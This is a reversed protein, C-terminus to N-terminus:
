NRPVQAALEIVAPPVSPNKASSNWKLFGAYCLARVSVATDEVEACKRYIETASSALEPNTHLLDALEGLHEGASMLQEPIGHAEDETTTNLDRRSPLTSMLRTEIEALRKKHNEAVAETVSTYAQSFRGTAPAGTPQASEIAHPSGYSSQPEKDFGRDALIYATIALAIGSIIAQVSNKM